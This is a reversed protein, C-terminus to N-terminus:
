FVTLLLQEFSATFALSHIGLCVCFRSHSTQLSFTDWVTYQEVAWLGVEAQLDANVARAVSETGVSVDNLVDILHQLDSEFTLSSFCHQELTWFDVHLSPIM